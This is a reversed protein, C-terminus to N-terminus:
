GLGQSVPYFLVLAGNQFPNSLIGWSWAATLEFVYHFHRAIGWFGSALFVILFHLHPLPLPLLTHRTILTALQLISLHKYPSSSWWIGGQAVMYWWTGGHAVMHWWTGGYAM